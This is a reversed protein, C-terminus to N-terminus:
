KLDRQGEEATSRTLVGDVLTLDRLVADIEEPYLHGVQFTTECFSGAGKVGTVLQNVVEETSDGEVTAGAALAVQYVSLVTGTNNLRPKQPVDTHQHLVLVATLILSLAVVM